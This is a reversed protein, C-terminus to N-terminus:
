RIESIWNEVQESLSGLRAKAQHKSLRSVLRPDVDAAVSTEFIRQRLKELSTALSVVPGLRRQKWSPLIEWYMLWMDQGRVVSDIQSIISELGTLDWDDQGNLQDEIARVSLNHAEIRQALLQHNVTASEISVTMSATEQNTRVPKVIATALGAPPAPPYSFNTNAVNEIHSAVRHLGVFHNAIPHAVTWTWDARDPTPHKASIRLWSLKPLPGFDPRSFAPSKAFSRNLGSPKSKPWAQRGPIEPLAELRVGRVDDRSLETSRRAKRSPKSVTQGAVLGWCFVVMAVVIIVIFRLINFMQFVGVPLTIM